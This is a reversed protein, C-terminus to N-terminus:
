VAEKDADMFTVDKVTLPLEVYASLREAFMSFNCSEGNLHIAEVSELHGPNAWRAVLGGKPHRADDDQTGFEVRVIPEGDDPRYAASISLYNRKDEFDCVVESWDDDFELIVAEIVSAVYQTDSELDVILEFKRAPLM